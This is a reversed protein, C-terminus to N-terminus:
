RFKQHNTKRMQDIVPIAQAHAQQLDGAKVLALTQNLETDLGDLAQRYGQVEPSNDSQGLLKMPISQKADLVAQQMATLATLAQQTNQTQQFLEYNKEITDMDQGLDAAFSSQMVLSFAMIGISQSIIKM